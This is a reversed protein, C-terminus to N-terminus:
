ILISGLYPCISLTAVTYKQTVQNSAKLGEETPQTMKRARLCFTQVAKYFRAPPNKQAKQESQAFVYYTSHEMELSHQAIFIAPSVVMM